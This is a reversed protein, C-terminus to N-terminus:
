NLLWVDTPPHYRCFLEEEVLRVIQEDIHLQSTSLYPLVVQCVKRYLNLRVPHAVVFM